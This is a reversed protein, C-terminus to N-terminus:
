SKPLKGRPVPLAMEEGSKRNIVNKVHISYVGTTHWLGLRKFHEKWSSAVWSSAVAVGVMEGNSNVILGGSHGYPIAEDFDFTGERDRAKRSPTFVQGEVISCESRELDAISPERDGYAPTGIAFLWQNLSPRNNDSLSVVNSFPSGSAAELVALDYKTDVWGTTKLSIWGDRYCRKAKISTVSQHRPLAVVHAPTVIKSGSIAFGSGPVMSGDKFRIMITVSAHKADEISSADALQPLTQLLILTLVGFITRIKL